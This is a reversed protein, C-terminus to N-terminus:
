TAETTMFVTYPDGLSNVMGEIAGHVMAQFDFPESGVYEEQIIRWADWFLSFDVGDPQGEELNKVGKIPPVYGSIQGLYFGGAFSATITFVLVAIVLNRM